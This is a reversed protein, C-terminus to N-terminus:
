SSKKESIHHVIPEIFTDKWDPQIDSLTNLLELCDDYKKEYLCVKALYYNAYSHNPHTTLKAELIERAKELENKEIMENLDDKWENNNVGRLEKKLYLISRIVNFAAIVGFLFFIGIMLYQIVALHHIIPLIDNQNM